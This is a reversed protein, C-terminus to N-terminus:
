QDMKPILLLRRSLYYNLVNMDVLGKNFDLESSKNDECLGITYRSAATEGAKTAATM